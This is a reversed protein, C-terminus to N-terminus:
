PGLNGRARQRGSRHDAMVVVAGEVVGVAGGGVGVGRGVSM